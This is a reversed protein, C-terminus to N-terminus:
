VIEMLTYNEPEDLCPALAGELEYRADSARWRDWDEESEWTSLIFHHHPDKVDRLTEGGIYGPLDAAAKRAKKTAEYYALEM